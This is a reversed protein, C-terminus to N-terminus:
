TFEYHDGSKVVTTQFPFNEETIQSIQNILIDSGTFTVKKEGNIEFQLHLCKGSKNKPYKSDQIKYKTVIIEINFIKGISNKEGVLCDSGAVNLDSFRKM